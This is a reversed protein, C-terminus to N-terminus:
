HFPQRMKQVSVIANANNLALFNLDAVSAGEVVIRKTHFINEVGKFSRPSNDVSACLVM